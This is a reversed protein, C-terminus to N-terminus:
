AQVGEVGEAIDDLKESQDEMGKKVEELMGEMRKFGESGGGGKIEQLDM